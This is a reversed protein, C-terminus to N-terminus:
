LGSTNLICAMKRALEGKLPGHGNNYLDAPIDRAAVHGSSGDSYDINLQLSQLFPVTGTFLGNMLVSFTYTEVFDETPTLTGLLTPWPWNRSHLHNLVQGAQQPTTAGTWDSLFPYAQHDAVKDDAVDGYNVWNHPPLLNGTSNNYSWSKDFFPRKDPCANDLRQFYYNVHDPKM